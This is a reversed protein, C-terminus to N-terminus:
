LQDFGVAHFLEAEIEAPKDLGIRRLDKRSDGSANFIGAIVWQQHLLHILNCEIRTLCSFNRLCEVGWFTINKTIEVYRCKDIM